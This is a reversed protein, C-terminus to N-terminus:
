MIIYYILMWLVDIYHWYLIYLTLILNYIICNCNSLVTNLYIVISSYICSIVMLSIWCGINVHIWHLGIVWYMINDRCVNNIYWLMLYFEVVQISIFSGIISGWIMYLVTTYINSLMHIVIISLGYHLLLFTNLTAIMYINNVCYCCSSLSLVYNSISIFQSSNSYFYWTFLIMETMVLIYLIICWWLIILLYSSIYERISDTVKSYWVSIWQISVIYVSYINMVCISSIFIRTMTTNLNIEKMHGNINTTVTNNITQRYNYNYSYSSLTNNQIDPNYPTSPILNM